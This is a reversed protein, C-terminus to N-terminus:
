KKLKKLNAPEKPQYCSYASAAGSAKVASKFGITAVIKLIVNNKKM